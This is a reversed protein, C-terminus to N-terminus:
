GKGGSLEAVEGMCVCAAASRGMRDRVIASTGRLTTDSFVEDSRRMVGEHDMLLSLAFNSVTVPIGGENWFSKRLGEAWSLIGISASSSSDESSVEKGRTAYVSSWTLLCFENVAEEQSIQWSKCYMMRYVTSCLQVRLM